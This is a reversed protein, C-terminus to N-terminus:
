EGDQTDHYLKIANTRGGFFADRPELPQPVRLSDVYTEMTPDGQMEDQFECEWKEVLQWGHRDGEQKLWDRRQIYRHYADEM